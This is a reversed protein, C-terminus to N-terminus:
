DRKKGEDRSAEAAKWSAAWPTDFSYALQVRVGPHTGSERNIPILAEVGIQVDGHCWLFGPNITGATRYHAGNNAVPFQFSYEVLPVFKALAKPVNLSPVNEFAYVLSYQLSGSLSLSYPNPRRPNGPDDTFAESSFSKRPSPVDFSAQATVAIPRLLGWDSPLDGAGKGLYITPSITSYTEAGVRQAGIGSWRNSLGASLVFEHEADTVFQYKLTTDLNQFGNGGPRLTTFVPRAVIAFSKTLQVSLDSTFDTQRVADGNKFTAIQPVFETEVQPEDVVLTAPFEREGIKDAWGPGTSYSLAATFAASAALLPHSKM